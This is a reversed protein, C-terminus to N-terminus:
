RRTGNRAVFRRCSAHPEPPAHHTARHPSRGSAPGFRADYVRYTVGGPRYLPAAM